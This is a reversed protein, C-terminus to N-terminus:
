AAKKAFSDQFDQLKSLVLMIDTAHVSRSEDKAMFRAIRIANKIQRGNVDMAAIKKVDADTITVGNTALLNEIVQERTEIGFEGYRFALSIRSYFAEDMDACRNTTLILVGNYYELLRLFTGVMANRDIDGSQRAELFVDAEDLLLVANWRQATQLVTQLKEELTEPNTGLEGVSVAYLPRKLTEAVAEATLTKGLGPKGHLLLVCGGGKNDILDSVLSADSNKVLAHVLKKDGEPMVLKEFADNRFKIESIQNAHVTGWKKAVFSFITLRPDVARIDDAQAESVEILPQNRDEHYDHDDRENPNFLGHGVKDVIARGTAPAERTFWAVKYSLTGQVQIYGCRNNLEIVKQGQTTLEDLKEQSPTTVFGWEALTKSKGDPRFRFDKIKTKLKGNMWQVFQYKINLIPGFMTHYLETQILKGYAEDGGFRFLLFKQQSPQLCEPLLEFPVPGNEAILKAILARRAFVTKQLQGYLEPFYNNLEEFTDAGTVNALPVQWPAKAATYQLAQYPIVDSNWENLKEAAAKKEIVLMARDLSNLNVLKYGPGQITQPMKALGEATQEVETVVDPAEPKETKAVAKVPVALAKSKTKLVPKKKTTKVTETNAMNRKKRKTMNPLPKSLITFARQMLRKTEPNQERVILRKLAAVGETHTKTDM